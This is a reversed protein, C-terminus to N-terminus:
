RISIASPGLEIQVKNTKGSTLAHTARWTASDIDRYAGVVGLYQAEPSATREIRQEEGPRLNLEERALLDGGLTEAERDYLSFFDAGQFAGATKLEYIRVVIPLAQGTADRNVNTAAVVDARVRTPSSACGTTAAIAVSLLLVLAIRIVTNGCNRM